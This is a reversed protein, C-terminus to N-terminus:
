PDSSFDFTKIKFLNLNLAKQSAKTEVLTIVKMRHCTKAEPWDDSAIWPPFM